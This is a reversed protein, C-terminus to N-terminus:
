HQAPKGSMGSNRGREDRREGGVVMGPEVMVVGVGAVVGVVVGVGVVVRVGVPVISTWLRLMHLTKSIIAELAGAEAPTLQKAFWCHSPISQVAM